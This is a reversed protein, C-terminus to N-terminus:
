IHLKLALRGSDDIRHLFLQLNNETIYRDTAERSGKWWGYDDIVLVGHKSVQPFLHRLEHYTSEYWDTDLRLLAIVGPIRDPITDEVKGKIFLINEKPYGTSYMNTQVEELSSYIWKHSDDPKLVSWHQKAVFGDSVRVDKEGPEPMGEYTDYLWLRRDTEGFSQLALAAIMSSGGKWIGCEVIDGPIQSEVLYQVAKYLEYMRHISTMTYPRTKEYIEQFGPDMDHPLTTTQYQTKVLAYGFKNLVSQAVSKLRLRRM